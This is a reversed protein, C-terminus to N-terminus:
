YALGKRTHQGAATVVLEQSKMPQVTGHDWNPFQNDKIKRRSKSCTRFLFKLFRQLKPWLIIIVWAEKAIYVFRIKFRSAHFTADRANKRETYFPMLPHM